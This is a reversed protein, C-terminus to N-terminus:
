NNHLFINQVPTQSISGVVKIKVVKLSFYCLFSLIRRFTRWLIFCFFCFLIEHETCSKWFKFPSSLKGTPHTGGANRIAVPPHRRPCLCLCLGGHVSFGSSLSGRSPVHSRATLCSTVEYLSRGGRHLSHSVCVESFIVKGWVEFISFYHKWLCWISRDHVEPVVRRTSLRQGRAEEQASYWDSWLLCLVRSFALPCSLFGVPPFPRSVFAFAVSFRCSAFPCSFYGAFIDSARNYSNPCYLHLKFILSSTPGLDM